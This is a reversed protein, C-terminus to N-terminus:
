RIQIRFNVVSDWSAFHMDFTMEQKFYTEYGVEYGQEDQYTEYIRALKEDGQSM